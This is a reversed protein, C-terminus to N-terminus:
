QLPKRFSVFRDKESFDKLVQVDTFGSLVFLDATSTGLAENIEVIGLGGPRLLRTFAAAEARYFLLPDDDSVFLALHPEHALVNESMLSKECDRVYPPNSLVIDFEGLDSLQSADLVDRRLFRPAQAGEPADELLPQGAAVALAEESIDVAVVESGPLELAMTWAICGSGTCCDLVRHSNSPFAACCDAIHQSNALGVTLMIHVMLETEPRPILVAPSVNFRRGYFDAHGFVYQLPEGAVLRSMAMELAPVSCSPIEWEPELVHKLLSVDLLESVLRSVIARAEEQPYLEQLSARADHIFKRLLM